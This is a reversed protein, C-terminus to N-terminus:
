FSAVGRFRELLPRRVLAALAYRSEDATVTRRLRAELLPHDRFSNLRGQLIADVRPVRVKLDRVVVTGAALDGLRQCRSSLLSVCGGLGYFFPIADLVRLVNRMVVQSFRIRLGREDLVRLAVGRKVRGTRRNEAGGVGSVGGVGAIGFGWLRDEVRVAVRARPVAFFSEVVGAWVLMGAMGMCLTVVDDSVGRLRVRLSDRTGWGIVAGTLVSGERRLDPYIRVECGLEITGRMEWFGQASPTEVHVRDIRCMGRELALPEWACVGREVEGRFCVERVRSDVELTVPFFVGVRLSREGSGPWTVRLGWEFSQGKSTRILAEGCVEVADMRRSSRVADLGLVAILVVIGAMLGLSVAVWFVAGVVGQDPAAVWIQWGCLGLLVCMLGIWFWRRNTGVYSVSEIKSYDM